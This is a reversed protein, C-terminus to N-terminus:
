VTKGNHHNRLRSRNINNEAPRHHVIAHLFPDVPILKKKNKDRRRLFQDITIDEYRDHVENYVRIPQRRNRANYEYNEPIEFGFEAFSTRLRDTNWRARPPM